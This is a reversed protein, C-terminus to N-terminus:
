HKGNGYIEIEAVCRNCIGKNIPNNAYMRKNCRVCFKTAQDTTTYGELSRNKILKNQTM